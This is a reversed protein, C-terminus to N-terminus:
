SMRPLRKHRSISSIFGLVLPALLVLLLIGGAKSMSFITEAWDGSKSMWEEQRGGWYNALDFTAILWTFSLGGVLSFARQWTKISRMYLLTGASLLLMLIAMIPGEGHVEDYVILMVWPLTGYLTFSLLTWDYWIARGLQRIPRLTRLLLFVIVVVLGIPIWALWGWLEGRGFTYGFVWFGPTAANMMYLSSLLFLSWYPFSWRPFGKVLGIGSVVMWGAIALLVMLSGFIVGISEPIAINDVIPIAVLGILFLVPQLLWPTMAALTEVWPSPGKKLAPVDSPFTNSAHSAEMEVEELGEQELAHRYERWLAVPWDRLERFFLVSLPPRGEIIADDVATAFVDQTEEGFEIGFRRPYTRLLLGYLHTLLCSVRKMRASPKLRM